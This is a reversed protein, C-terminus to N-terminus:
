STLVLIVRRCFHRVEELLAIKMAAISFKFYAICWKVCQRISVSRIVKAGGKILVQRNDQLQHLPLLVEGGGLPDM